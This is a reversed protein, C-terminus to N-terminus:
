GKEELKLVSHEPNGGPMDKADNMKKHQHPVSIVYGLIHLKYNDSIKKKKRRQDKTM